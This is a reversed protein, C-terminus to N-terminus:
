QVVSAQIVAGLADDSMAGTREGSGVAHVHPLAHAGEVESPATVGHRLLEKMSDFNKPQPRRLGPHQLLMAVDRMVLQAKHHRAFFYNPCTASNVVDTKGLVDFIERVSNNANPKQHLYLIDLGFGPHQLLEAHCDRGMSYIPIQNSRGFICVVRFFTGFMGSSPSPASSNHQYFHEQVLQLFVSIDLVKDEGPQAVTLGDIASLLYNTDATFDVTWQPGSPSLSVLAFQTPEKTYTTSKLTIFMKLAQVVIQLKTKSKTFLAGMESTFDIALVIKEPLSAIHHHDTAM